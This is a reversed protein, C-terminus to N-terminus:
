FFNNLHLFVFNAILSIILDKKKLEIFNGLSLLYLLFAPMFHILYRNWVVYAVVMTFILSILVPIYFPFSSKELKDQNLMFIIFLLLFSPGFYYLKTIMDFPNLDIVTDINHMWVHGTIITLWFYYGLSTFFLVPIILGAIFGLLYKLSLQKSYFILSVVLFFIFYIITFKIYFCLGYMIGYLFAVRFKKSPFLLSLFLPITFLIMGLQDTSPINYRFMVPSSIMSLIVISKINGIEKKHSYLILLLISLFTITMMLFQASWKGFPFIDLWLGIIIPTLPPHAFPRNNNQL